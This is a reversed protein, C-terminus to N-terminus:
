RHAASVKETSEVPEEVMLAELAKAQREREEAIEEPTMEEFPVLSELYEKYATTIDKNITSNGGSGSNQAMAENVAIVEEQAKKSAEEAQKLGEEKLVELNGATKLNEVPNTLADFVNSSNVTSPMAIAVNKNQEGYPESIIVREVNSDVAPKLSVSSAQVHEKIFNFFEDRCQVEHKENREDFSAYLDATKKIDEVFKNVNTVKSDLNEKLKEVLGQAESKHHYTPIYKLSFDPVNIGYYDYSTNALYGYIRPYIKRKKLDIIEASIDGLESEQKGTIREFAALLGKKNQVSEKQLALAKLEEFDAKDFLPEDDSCLEDLATLLEKSVDGSKETGVLVLVLDLKRKLGEVNSSYADAWGKATEYVVQPNKVGKPSQSFDFLGVRYVEDRMKNPLLSSDPMTLSLNRRSEVALSYNAIVKALEQADDLNESISAVIKELNKRAIQSEDLLKGDKEAFADYSQGLDHSAFFDRKVEEDSLGIWRKRENESTAIDQECQNIKFGLNQINQYNQNLISYAEDKGEETTANLFDNQLSGSNDVLRRKRQQLGALKAHLFGIEVEADMVKLRRYEDIEEPSMSQIRRFAADRLVSNLGYQTQANVGLSFRLKIDNQNDLYRRKLLDGENSLEKSLAAIFSVFDGYEETPVVEKIEAM